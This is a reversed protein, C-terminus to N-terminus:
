QTSTEVLRDLRNLTSESCLMEMLSLVRGDKLNSLVSSVREGEAPKPAMDPGQLSEMVVTRNLEIGTSESRKVLSSLECQLSSVVRLNEGKIMRSKVLQSRMSAMEGEIVAAVEEWRVQSSTTPVGPLESGTSDQSIPSCHAQRALQQELQLILDGSRRIEDDYVGLASAADQLKGRMHANSAMLHEVTSVTMAACAESPVWAMCESFDEDGTVPVVHALTLGGAEMGDAGLHLKCRQLAARHAESGLTAHVTDANLLLGVQMGPSDFERVRRQYRDRICMESGVLSRLM